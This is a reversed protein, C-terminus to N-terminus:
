AADGLSTSKSEMDAKAEARYYGRAIRHRVSKGRDDEAQPASFVLEAVALVPLRGGAAVLFRVARPLATPLDDEAADLLNAFRRESYGAEFLARGLRRLASAAEGSWFEPQEASGAPEKSRGPFSLNDPAALAAAHIVLAWRGLGQGELEANPVDHRALMRHLQVEAMTGTPDLRRLEALPGIGFVDEHAMRAAMAAVIRNRIPPQGRDPDPQM